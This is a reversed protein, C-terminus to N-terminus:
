GGAIDVRRLRLSNAIVSVSSLSMAAAAIMPSLLSGFWPYLAGAAIPIGVANYAFALWLNQRINCMTAVSLARARVIGTLDGKVLTIGASEIAVDTGNGMAIGVDASALAPGDNVGDGAMAVVAGGAQLRRIIVTKQQPSVGAEIADIALERGIAAATRQNDGTLMLLKLGGSRLAQLAEPASAKVPDAVAILGLLQHGVAVFVVTAAMGRLQEAQAGLQGVDVGASQLLPESGIVATKGDVQARVGQGTVSQFARVPVPTLPQGTSFERIARGIPHESSRELAQAVALLRGPEVGPAAQVETVRPRGETLTGTKDIVLTDVKELRELAAANKILVGAQAGRGVAVMVAMPTALGLACPCAIILVAVAAILAHALVPAPGWWVWSAFAALAIAVVTPVFWAAVRDALRQIPAQSRQAAAVEAVIQALLTDKGVKAARMVFAGRGNISGAVVAAGVRKEVPMSEGTLMSEDVSSAGSELVGDVPISEGPRVRLRDGVGLAALGVDVEADEPGLRHALKPTLNMLARIAGGTRERAKLELVQGLLVLVVIVASAEFYLDVTGHMGRLDAPFWAPELLAALSYLYASSVGLGILTFMNPALRRLSQVARELFPWGCGLVVLTAGAAQVWRSWTAGAGMALIMVVLAVPAGVWLRRRMQTLEPNEGTDAAPELPELAMGCLPCPGPQPERIQPHMPCTYIAGPHPPPPAQSPAARSPPPVAPHAYAGPDALFKSRCGACCFYVRGGGVEAVHPSDAKVTMGCVPDRSDNM